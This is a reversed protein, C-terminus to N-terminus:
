RSIARPTEQPKGAPRYCKGNREYLKDGCPARRSTEVWCGGYLQVESADPDCDKVKQGPFPRKPMELALLTGDMDAAALVFGGVMGGGGTGEQLQAVPTAQIRPAVLVWLLAVATLSAVVAAGPAVRRWARRLTRVARRATPRARRVPGRPRAESTLQSMMESRSGPAVAVQVVNKLYGLMRELERAADAESTGSPAQEVELAYHPPHQAAQPSSTLRVVWRLRPWDRRQRGTLVAVLGSTGRVAHRAVHLRGLLKGWELGQGLIFPGARHTQRRTNDGQSTPRPATNM